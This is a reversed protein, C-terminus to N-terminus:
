GLRCDTIYLISLNESGKNDLYVCHKKRHKHASWIGILYITVYILKQLTVSRNMIIIFSGIMGAYHSIYNNLSKYPVYWLSNQTLCLEFYFSPAIKSFTKIGTAGRGVPLTGHDPLFVNYQNQPYMKTYPMYSHFTHALRIM